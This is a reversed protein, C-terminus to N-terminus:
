NTTTLKVDVERSIEMEYCTTEYPGCVLTYKVGLPSVVFESVLRPSQEKDTRLYVTEGFEFKNEIFMM